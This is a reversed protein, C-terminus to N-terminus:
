QKTLAEYEKKAWVRDQERVEEPLHKYACWQSEWRKNRERHKEIVKMTTKYAKSKPYRDPDLALMLKHLDVITMVLEDIDRTVSMSWFQWADHSISALKEIAKYKYLLEDYESHSISMNKHPPEPEPNIKSKFPKETM